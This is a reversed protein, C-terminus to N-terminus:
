AAHVYLYQLPSIVSAYPLKSMLEKDEMSVPEDVHSMNQFLTPHMTPTYHMLTFEEGKKKSKPTFGDFMLLVKRIYNQQHLELIRGEM